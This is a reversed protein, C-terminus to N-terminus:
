YIKQPIEKGLKVSLYRLKSQFEDIPTYCGKLHRVGGNLVIKTRGHVM